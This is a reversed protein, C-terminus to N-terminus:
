GMCDGNEQMIFASSLVTEIGSEKRLRQEHEKARSGTEREFAKEPVTLITYGTRESDGERKCVFFESPASNQEIVTRYIQILGISKLSHSQIYVPTVSLLM